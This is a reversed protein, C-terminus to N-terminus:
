SGTPTTAAAAPTGQQEMAPAFVKVDVKRNEKRMARTERQGDAAMAEGVGLVHINRLPINHTSTLYRVVANARRESLALNSAAGGTRDTYGQVEIVYRKMGQVAQAMTDLQAKADKGLVDRNVRFLVSQNQVEQMNNLNDFRSNVNRELGAIQTQAGQALQQAQDAQQRAQDATQGVRTVGDNAQRALKEAGQAREDTTSLGSRLEGISTTNETTKGEVQQVRGTVPDVQQRVYKKTACGTVLFSGALVVGAAVSLFRNTRM